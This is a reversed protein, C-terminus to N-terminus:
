GQRVSLNAAGLEPFEHLISSLGRLSYHAFQRVSSNRLFRDLFRNLSLILLKVIPTFSYTFYSSTAFSDIEILMNAFMLKIVTLM